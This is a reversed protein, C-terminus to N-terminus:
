HDHYPNPMVDSRVPPASTTGRERRASDKRARRVSRVPADDRRSRVAARTSSAAEVPASTAAGGKATGTTAPSPSETSSSARVSARADVGVAAATAATITGGLATSPSVV